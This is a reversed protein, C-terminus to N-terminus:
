QKKKLMGPSIQVCFSCHRYSNASQRLFAFYFDVNHGCSIFPLVYRMAGIRSIFTKYYINLRAFFRMLMVFTLSLTIIESLIQLRRQAGGGVITKSRYMARVM